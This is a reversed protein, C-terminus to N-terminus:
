NRVERVHLDMWDPIIEDKLLKQSETDHFLAKVFENYNPQDTLSRLNNYEDLYAAHDRLNDHCKMCTPVGFTGNNSGYRNSNGSITYCDHAKEKNCIPCTHRDFIM